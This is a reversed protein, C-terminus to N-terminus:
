SRSPRPDPEALLQQATSGVVSLFAQLDSPKAIYRTMGLRRAESQDRESQSSTFVVIPVGALGPAARLSKLVELGTVKPLNLDLFILRVGPDGGSCLGRIAEEGDRYHTIRADIKQFRLAEKMLVFDPLNDEIVVIHPPLLTHTM